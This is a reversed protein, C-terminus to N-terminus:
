QVFQAEQCYREFERNGPPNAQHIAIIGCCDCGAPIIGPVERFNVVTASTGESGIKPLIPKLISGIVVDGQPFLDAPTPKRHLFGATIRRTRRARSVRPSYEAIM